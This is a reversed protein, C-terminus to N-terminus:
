CIRATTLTQVHNFLVSLTFQLEKFCLSVSREEWDFGWRDQSKEPSCVSGQRFGPDKDIDQQHNNCTATPPAQNNSWNSKPGTEPGIRELLMRRNQGPLEAQDTQFSDLPVSIGWPSGQPPSFAEARQPNLLYLHICLIFLILYYVYISSFQLFGREWSIEFM